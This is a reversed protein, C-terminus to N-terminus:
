RSRSKSSCLREAGRIIHEYLLEPRAAHRINRDCLIRSVVMASSLVDHGSFQGLVVRMKLTGDFAQRESYGGIKAVPPLIAGDIHFPAHARADGIEVIVLVDIIAQPVTRRYKAVRMGFDVLRSALAHLDAAHECQGRLALERHRLANRLHHRSGFEHAKGIGARFRDHRSQAQRAGVRALIIVHYEFAAIVPQEIRRHPERGHVFPRLDAVRLYFGVAFTHGDARAAKRVEHLRVVGVLELVHELPMRM